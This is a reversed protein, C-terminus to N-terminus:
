PQRPFGRAPRNESHRVYLPGQIGPRDDLGVILVRDRQEVAVAIPEGAIPHAQRLACRRKVLREAKGHLSAAFGRQETPNHVPHGSSLGQQDSLIHAAGLTEALGHESGQERGRCCSEEKTQGARYDRIGMVMSTSQLSRQGTLVNGELFSGPLQWFPLPLVKPYVLILADARGFHPDSFANSVEPRNAFWGAIGRVDLLGAYITGYVLAGILILWHHARLGLAERM